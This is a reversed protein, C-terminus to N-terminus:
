FEVRAHSGLITKGFLSCLWEVAIDATTNRSDLLPNVEVCDVGIIEIRGMADAEHLLEALFHGERYSLGGMVTTGTGGAFVPDLSDVDFSIWVKNSPKSAIWKEFSAMVGTVGHRDIDHMTTPFSGDMASIQMREGYDVDRLGIWAVREAALRHTGVIENQLTMWQIGSVSESGRGLGMIAALPMGHLNGSPSSDPTNLDAHADIWLVNVDGQTHELAASVSAISLGHDGGIMLPLGQNRLSDLVRTHVARYMELASSFHRLGDHSDMQLSAHVDGLDTTDVGLAELRPVLGAIRM